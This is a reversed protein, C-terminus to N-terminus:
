MQQGQLVHLLKFNKLTRGGPDVRGDPSAMKIVDKQYAKIAAITNPGIKKDPNLKKINPLLYINNNLLIQIKEVDDPRNGEVGAIVEGVYKSITVM